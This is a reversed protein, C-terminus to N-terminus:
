LGQLGNGVLSIFISSSIQCVETVDSLSNKLLPIVLEDRVLSILVPCARFGPGPKNLVSFLLELSLVKSKLAIPDATAPLEKGSTKCLARFANFADQKALMFKAGIKFRMKVQGSGSFRRALNAIKCELSCIFDKTEHCQHIAIRGTYLGCMMCVQRTKKSVVGATETIDLECLESLKEINKEAAKEAEQKLELNATCMYRSYLEFRDFVIRMIQVLVAKATVENANNAPCLYVFFCARICQLLNSDHVECNPSSVLTLLARLAHSQVCDDDVFAGDCITQVIVDILLRQGLRREAPQFECSYVMPNAVLSGRLFGSAVLRQIYELSIM